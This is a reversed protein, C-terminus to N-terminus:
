LVERLAVNVGTTYGGMLNITCASFAVILFGSCLPMLHAQFPTDRINMPAINYEVM